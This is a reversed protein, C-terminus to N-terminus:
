NKKIKFQFGGKNEKINRILQELWDREAKARVYPREFLALIIGLQADEPIDKAKMDAVQRDPETTKIVDLNKFAEVNSHLFEIGKDIDDLHTQLADLAEKKTLLFMASLGLDFLSKARPPNSLCRIIEQKLIRRGKPTLKYTKKSPKLKKSSKQGEVLGRKEIESLSKYVSSKNTEGIEVWSAYNRDEMTKFIEYGYRAGSGVLALVALYM